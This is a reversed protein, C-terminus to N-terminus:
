FNNVNIFTYPINNSKGFNDAAKFDIDSDGIFIFSELLDWGGYLKTCANMLAWPSPKFDLSNDRGYVLKFKNKLGYKILNQLIVEHCNNSVIVLDSKKYSNILNITYSYIDVSSNLELDTLYNNVFEAAESNSSLLKKYSELIPKLNDVINFEKFLFLKMKDRHFEYNVVDLKFLTRDFDFFVVKPYVNNM